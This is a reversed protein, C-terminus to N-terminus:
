RNFCLSFVKGSDSDILPLKSEMAIAQSKMLAKMNEKIQNDMDGISEYKEWPSSYKEVVKSVSPYLFGRNIIQFFLHIIVFHSSGSIFTSFNRFAKTNHAAILSVANQQNMTKYVNLFGVVASM